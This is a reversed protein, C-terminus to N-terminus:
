IEQCKKEAKMPFIGSVEEQYFFLEYDLQGVWTLKKWKVAYIFSLKAPFYVGQM